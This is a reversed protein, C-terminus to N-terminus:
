FTHCELCGQPKNAHDWRMANKHPSAHARHCSLCFVQAGYIDTSNGSPYEARTVKGTLRSWHEVDAHNAGSIAIGVPHSTWGGAGGGNGSGTFKEHCAGCFDNIGSIYTNERYDPDGNAEVPTDYGNIKKKLNRYNGNDHADHCSLCDFQALPAGGPPTLGLAMDVTQINHGASDSSLTPTFSGGALEESGNLVHPPNLGSVDLTADHCALCLLHTPQVLDETSYGGAEQASPHHCASCHVVKHNCWGNSVGWFIVFGLVPLKAIRTSICLFRSMM